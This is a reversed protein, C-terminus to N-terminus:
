RSWFTVLEDFDKEELDKIAVEPAERIKERLIAAQERLIQAEAWNGQAERLRAKLFTTRAIEPGYSAPQM